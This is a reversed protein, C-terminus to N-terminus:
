IKKESSDVRTEDQTDYQPSFSSFMGRPSGICRSYVCSIRRFCTSSRLSHRLSHQGRARAFFGLCCAGPHPPPSSNWETAGLGFLFHAIYHSAGLCMRYRILRICCDWGWSYGCGDGQLLKRPSSTAHGRNSANDHLPDRVLSSRELFETLM